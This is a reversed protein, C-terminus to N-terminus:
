KLYEEVVKAAEQRTNVLGLYKGKVCVQFKGGEHKTYYRPAQEGLKTNRNYCNESPTVIRLNELRNDSPNRNIHDVQDHEGLPLGSLVLALRAAQCRRGNLKICLYGLRDFTGAKKGIKSKHYNNVWYFNGTDKEYRLFTAVEDVNIPKAKTM